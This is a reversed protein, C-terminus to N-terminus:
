AFVRRRVLLLGALSVLALAAGTLFTGAAGVWDWLGGALLSAALLGIGTVLNIVGYATGRLDAPATDAVLSAVIGQTFGMHLGWLLVGAAIGAISSCLALVLDATLLLAMGVALTDTRDRRDSLIGAPYAALAYSLNMLVLVGPVLM